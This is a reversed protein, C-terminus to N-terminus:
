DHQGGLNKDTIIEQKTFDHTKLWSILEVHLTEIDSEPKEKYCDFALATQSQTSLPKKAWLNLQDVWAQGSLTTMSPMQQSQLVTRKLVDNARHLYIQNQQEERWSKLIQNLESIALNRYRGEARKRIIFYITVGSILIILALLTWWGWALPWWSITDPLHVDRLQEALAEQIEPPLQNSTDQPM